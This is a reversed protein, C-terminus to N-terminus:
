TNTSRELRDLDPIPVVWEDETLLEGSLDAEAELVVDDADGDTRIETVIGRQTGFYAMDGVKPEIRTQHNDKVFVQNGTDQRVYTTTCTLPVVQGRLWDRWLRAYSFCESFEFAAMNEGETRFADPNILTLGPSYQNSSLVEFRGHGEWLFVIHERLDLANIVFDADIEITDMEPDYTAPDAGLEAAIEFAEAYDITTDTDLQDIAIGQHGTAGPTKM